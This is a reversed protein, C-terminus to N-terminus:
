GTPGTRLAVDNLFRAGDGALLLPLADAIADVLPEIWIQDAKAFPHLVYGEVMEKRGPHGIGIRIRWYDQGIHQDISRLGNHGGHGGGKKVKLKGPALDLDDHLVVVDAPQLKLFRMAEGVSQGSLNMFTLPELALVKGGAVTGDCIRGQHKRRWPTFRHREAVGELAVFGVNHRTREYDPGPNGLGVLLHM